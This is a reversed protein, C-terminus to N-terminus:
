LALGRVHVAALFSSINKAYRTVVGRWQKLHFFANQLLRDSKSNFQHFDDLFLLVVPALACFFVSENM